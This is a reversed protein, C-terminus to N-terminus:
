HLLKVVRVSAPDGEIAAETFGLARAFRRETSNERLVLGEMREYGQARAEQILAAMLLGAIGSKHWDDAIVVGFECAWTGFVLAYRAEGVIRKTGGVDAECVFAMHKAYDVHTFTHIMKESVEKVFKLFRLRKTDDSLAAFFRREEAEDEPRIPRITVVRGDHLTRECALHAPYAAAEAM